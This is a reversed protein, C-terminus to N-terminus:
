SILAVLELGLALDAHTREARLDGAGVLEVLIQLLLLLLPENSSFPPSALPL